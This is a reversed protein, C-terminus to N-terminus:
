ATVGRETMVEQLVEMEVLSLELDDKSHPHSIQGMILGCWTHLQRDTMGKFERRIDATLM